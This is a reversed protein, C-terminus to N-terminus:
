QYSVPQPRQASPNTVRKVVTASKAIFHKRPHKLSGGMYGTNVPETHPDVRYVHKGVEQRQVLGHYFQQGSLHDGATM